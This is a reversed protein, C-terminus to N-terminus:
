PLANSVEEVNISITDGTSQWEMIDAEFIMPEKAPTFTTCGSFDSLILLFAFCPFILRRKKRHNSFVLFKM